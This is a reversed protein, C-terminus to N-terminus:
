EIKIKIDASMPRSVCCLIFGEKKENDSLGADEDMKVEGSLLRGMCATCLGSQCSYPMDLNEDLGAELITKDPSVAYSYEQGQLIVTVERTLFPRDSGQADPDGANESAATYFSEKIIDEQPVNMGHLTEKAIDMLGEPGCIFYKTTTTEASASKALTEKIKAADIRGKLGTWDPGPKTINMLVELRDPHAAALQDLQKDFIIEHESRSCYLLTIKSNPENILVSKTIGMIPTIGSGGTIMVFHNKNKSHFDTTFNGMPKLINVTKGPHIHDNLYNSVVGGKIRKVTVGPYPDVYPSTCLSYSRREEKGNIELILTLFQGPKYELFPEPQEFFITVTDSTEKVVERVKLSAYYSNKKPEEKKRKFINFM